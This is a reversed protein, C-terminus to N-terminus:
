IIMKTGNKRRLEINAGKEILVEIFQPILKCDCHFLATRGKNDRINVDGPFCKLIEIATDVMTLFGENLGKIIDANQSDRKEKSLWEYRRPKLIQKCQTKLTKQTSRIEQQLHNVIIILATRGKNDRSNIDIGNQLYSILTANISDKMHLPLQTISYLPTQGKKDNINIDFGRQVMQVLFDPAPVHKHLITLGKNNQHNIYCGKELLLDVKVIDNNIYLLPTEGGNNEINVDAGKSLVHAIVEASANKMLSHLITKGRSLRHNIPFGYDLLKDFASINVRAITLPNWNSTDMKFIVGSFLLVDCATGKMIEMFNRKSPILGRNLLRLVVSPMNKTYTFWSKKPFFESSDLMKDIIDNNNHYVAATFDYKDSSYWLSKVNENSNNEQM